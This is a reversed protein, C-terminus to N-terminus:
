RVFLIVPDLTEVRMGITVTNGNATFRCPERKGDSSLREVSTVPKEFCLDLADLPDLELDFVAVLREGSPLLGTQMMIEADGPYWVPLDGYRRLLSILQRKRSETLFSFASIYTFQAEPTGCFTVVTGGESAPHTIVGPFPKIPEGDLTGNVTSEVTVDDTDPVIEYAENQANCANGSENLIENSLRKGNLPLLRAGIRDGFGRRILREATDGALFLRGKFWERIEDDTFLSDTAGSVFVAGGPKASFYFPIGLRELVCRTWSDAPLAAASDDLTLLGYDPVRSLPIRCGDKCLVPVLASLAEYFGRHESLIKRYARGSGPEFAGLRTIWHKAGNMGELISATFHAHLSRASTSYRNQPCTDTEALLVDVRNGAVERQCAARMMVSSLMRAGAPTYFGNNIRMIVPNGKGALIQANEAGFEAGRGVCCFAGPLTEDVSDIGERMARAAGTLSDGQVEAFVGALRRAEATGSRLIELLAERTLQTGARRNFEAMHKPCACGKGKRFMLRFDDDVMILGPRELALKRFSARMHERFGEDYPCYVDRYEGDTLGLYRQFPAYGHLPYGHGITCQVLIGTPIRDKELRERMTRYRAAFEAAKDHVPNGEPVLKCMFLPCTSVGNEYQSRVDACIEETHATDAPMISYLYM